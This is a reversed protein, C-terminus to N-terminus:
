RAVVEVSGWFEPDLAQRVDIRYRGAREIHGSFGVSPSAEGPDLVGDYDGRVCDPIAYSDFSARTRLNTKPDLWCTQVTVAIPADSRNIIRSSIHIWGPTPDGPGSYTVRIEQELGNFTFRQEAPGTVQTPTGSCAALVLAAALLATPRM